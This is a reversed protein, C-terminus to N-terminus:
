RGGKPPQLPNNGGGPQQPLNGNGGPQQPTNGGGGGGLGGFATDVAKPDTFYCVVVMSEEQSGIKWKVTLTVKRIAQELVPKFLPFMALVQGAGMAAMADGTANGSPPLFGTLPSEGEEGPKAQQAGNALEGAEPLEVKEILAEWTIKPYGEDDFDGDLTEAMEQFGEHLLDEEIDLMKGRALATAVTMMKVEHAARVHRASLELLFVLAVALVALSVMVELLTFGRGRQGGGRLRRV